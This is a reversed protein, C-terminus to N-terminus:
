GPQRRRDLDRRLKHESLRGYCFPEGDLFVAPPFPLQGRAALVRGEPSAVDVVTIALPYEGALRDLVREAHECLLCHEQTLLLVRIVAM